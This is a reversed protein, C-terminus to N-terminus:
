RRATADRGYAAGSDPPSTRAFGHVPPEGHDGNHRDQVLFPLDAAHEPAYRACHDVLHQHDVVARRVARRLDGTLEARAYQRHAPDGADTRCKPGAVAIAD